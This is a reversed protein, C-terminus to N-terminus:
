HMLAKPTRLYLLVVQILAFLCWASWVYAAMAVVWKVGCLAVLSVILISTLAQTVYLGGIAGALRAPVYWLVALTMTSALISWVTPIGVLWQALLDSVMAALIWFRASQASINWFSDKFDVQLLVPQILRKLMLTM